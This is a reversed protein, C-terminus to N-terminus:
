NLSYNLGPRAYAVMNNCHADAAAWRKTEFGLNAGTHAQKFKGPGQNERVM